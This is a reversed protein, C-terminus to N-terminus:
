EIRLARQVITIHKKISKIKKRSFSSFSLGRIEVRAMLAPETMKLRIAFRIRTIARDWTSADTCYGITVPPTIITDVRMHKKPSLFGDFFSTSEIITANAPISASNAM